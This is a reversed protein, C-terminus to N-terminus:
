ERGGEPVQDALIHAGKPAYLVYALGLPNNYNRLFHLRTALLADSLSRIRGSAAGTDGLLENYFQLAFAHAFHDPIPCLTAVVALAGRDRIWVDAFGPPEDLPGPQGTGCANLYVLPGPDEFPKRCKRSMYASMSPVDLSVREGAVQIDLRSLFQSPVSSECHCAFHILDYRFGDDTFIDVLAKTKWGDRDQEPVTELFRRLWDNAPGCVEDWGSEPQRPDGEGQEEAPPSLHAQVHLRLSSALSGHPASACRRRFLETLTRVESDAFHLDEAVASFCGDHLGIRGHRNFRIWYTIPVRFGWFKEWDVEGPESDAYEFMMEWLVPAKKGHQFTLEPLRVAQEQRLGLKAFLEESLRSRLGAGLRWMTEFTQRSRKQDLMLGRDDPPGAPAGATMASLDRPRSDAVYKALKWLEKIFEERANVAQNKGFGFEAEEMEVFARNEDIAV